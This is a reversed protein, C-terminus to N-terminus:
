VAVESVVGYSERVCGCSTCCGVEDHGGHGGGHGLAIDGLPLDFFTDEEADVRTRDVPANSVKYLWPSLKLAPSTMRSM